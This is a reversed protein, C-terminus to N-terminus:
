NSGQTKNSIRTKTHLINFIQPTKFKHIETLLMYTNQRLTAIQKILMKTQLLNVTFCVKILMQSSVDSLIRCQSLKPSIFMYVQQLLSLSSRGCEGIQLAAVLVTRDQYAATVFYFKTEPPWIIYSCNHKALLYQFTAQSPYLFDLM